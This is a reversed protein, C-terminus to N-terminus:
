KNLPLVLTVETGIGSESSLSIDGGLLVTLARSISLGLGNGRYFKDKGDIKRFKEFVAENLETPIGIGDDKIYISVEEGDVVPGGIEVLGKETYKGANDLVKWLIKKLKQIDTRVMLKEHLLNLKFVLSPYRSGYYITFEHHIAKIISVLDQEILDISIEKNELRSIEVTDEVMKILDQGSINILEVYNSAKEDSKFKQVLLNSFGMISNLPTRLEHSLNLLFASKLKDSQESQEKAIILKANTKDQQIKVREENLRATLIPSIYSCLDELFTIDMQIFNNNKNAVVLLGLLQNEITFIPVSIVNKLKPKEEIFHNSSNFLETKRTHLANLLPGDWSGPPLSNNVEPLIKTNSLSGHSAACQLGGEEDLYGIFGSSSDLEDLIAMLVKIFLVETNTTLFLNAIKNKVALLYRSKVIEQEQKKLDTIDRNIGAIGIIEGNGDELPVKTTLTWRSDGNKIAKFEEKNILAKKSEIIRQEDVYYDAATEEDFFDFDSKLHLESQKSVGLEIMHSKNNLIYKSSLDKIYIQDPMNNILTNLLNNHYKLQNQNEIRERIDKTSGQLGLIKGQENFLLKGTIEVPIEKKSKTFLKSEFTIHENKNFKKIATIAHRAMKIFELRSAFKWLNRGIMENPEYELVRMCSPSVYTIKMRLDMQWIMDIANDALLRFKRENKEIHAKAKDIETIDRFINLRSVKGNVYNIPGYSLQFVKDAIATNVLTSKMPNTHSNIEDCDSCPSSRNYIIEYCKDGKQPERWYNGFMPNAYEIEHDPGCIYVPDQMAGLIKLNKEESTKLAEQSELLLNETYIHRLANEIKNPFILHFEEDKVLFDLAGLKMMEIAIKIDGYGTMVIFPLLANKERLTEIVEKGSGEPMKYDLLLLDAKNADLIQLVELGSFAKLVKHGAREIHKCILLNLSPDDEAVVITYEKNHSKMYFLKADIKIRRL